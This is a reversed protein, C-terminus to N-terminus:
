GAAREARVVRVLAIALLTLAAAAVWHAGLLEQAYGNNWGGLDAPPFLLYILPVVLGLLGGAALALVRASVGRWLVLAVLPGLVLGSRLAFICGLVVAAAVGAALARRLPWPRPADRGVLPPQAPEARPRRKLALLALLALCVLGSLLGAWAATRGPAFALDVDRCGRDVPWGNAFGDVPVPEGLDRGQCSARWGRNYGEGLVLWAPGNVALRVDDHRGRGAEGPDLVRGALPPLTRPRPAPSRLRLLDPRLTGPPAEIRTRGAPLAVSGCSRAALPLGAEFDRLTGSPAFRLPKGASIRLDGCRGPLRAETPRPAARPLGAGSLEALGVARRSRQWAPTGAPFEAALIELRFRRARPLAPVRLSGDGAVTLPRSRAGGAVLRVRSPFRTGPLPALQLRRPAARANPSSWEIWAPSGALWEAAWGRSRSGDFAASARRSPRGEWRSASRLRAGGTDTGALRDLADDPASPSVSVRAEGDFRRAAPLDILRSLGQEADRSDNIRLYQLEGAQKRPRFPAPATTRELLVTLPSASLDAGRLASSVLLPTRLSERVRLGPVRVERLGGPASLRQPQPVVTREIEIALSRAGRLRLPLRNWGPRVPYSREGVRLAVPRGRSDGYPLVDIYPIDRPRDLKLEIRHEGPEASRDALWASSEDGDFAAFPRREPFQRGEPSFPARLAAAGGLEAVTEAESGREPFPDIRAANAEFPEDAALTWGESLRLQSSAFVRRRNSDSIVLEAGDEAAQRLQAATRDGAYVLPAVRCRASRPWGPSLTPRAM